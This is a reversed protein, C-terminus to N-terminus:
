GGWDRASDSYSITAPDTSIRAIDSLLDQRMGDAIASLEAAAGTDAAGKSALAAAGAYAFVDDYDPPLIVISADGSLLDFRCPYWNVWLGTVPTLLANPIVMSAGQQYWIFAPLATGPPALYEIGEVYSYTCNGVLLKRVRYFNQTADGAGTTLLTFPIVGNGDTTPTLLSLQYNAVANLIKKWERAHVMGLRRDVEGGPTADWRPSGYADAILLVDTRAQARTSPYVSQAV